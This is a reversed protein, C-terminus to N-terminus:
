LMINVLSVSLTIIIHEDYNKLNHIFVPIKFNKSNFSINCKGHAAGRYKGNYHDHDRVKMDNNIKNIIKEAKRKECNGIRVLGKGRNIVDENGGSPNSSGNKILLEGEHIKKDAVKIKEHQETIVKENAVINTDNFDQECISM